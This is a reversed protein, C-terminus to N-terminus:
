RSASQKDTSATEEVDTSNYKFSKSCRFAVSATYFNGFCWSIDFGEAPDM